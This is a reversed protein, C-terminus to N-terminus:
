TRNRFINPIRRKIAKLERMLSGVAELLEGESRCESSLRGEPQMARIHFRIKKPLGDPIPRDKPWEHFVEEDLFVWQFM